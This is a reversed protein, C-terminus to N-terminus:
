RPDYMKEFLSQWQPDDVGNLQVYFNDGAMLMGSFTRHSDEVYRALTQAVRKQADDGSGWDGMALLNVEQQPPPTEQAASRLAVGLLTLLMVWVCRQKCFRMITGMLITLIRLIRALGM